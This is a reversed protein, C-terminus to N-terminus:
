SSVGLKTSLYSLRASIWAAATQLESVWFRSRSDSFTARDVDLTDSTTKNGLVAFAQKGIASASVAGLQANKHNASVFKSGAASAAVDAVLNAEATSLSTIAISDEPAVRVAQAATLRLAVIGKLYTLRAIEASGNAKAVGQLGNVLAGVKDIGADKAMDTIDKKMEKLSPFVYPSGDKNQLVLM